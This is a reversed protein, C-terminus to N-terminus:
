DNCVGELRARGTNRNYDRKVVALLRPKDDPGSVVAWEQGDFWFVTLPISEREQGWGDTWIIRTQMDDEMRFFDPPLGM